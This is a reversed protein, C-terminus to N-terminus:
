TAPFIVINTFWIIREIRRLCILHFWLVTKGILEQVLQFRSLVCGMQSKITPRTGVSPQETGLSQTM